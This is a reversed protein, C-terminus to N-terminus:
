VWELNSLSINAFNSDKFLLDTKNEPNDLFAKALLKAVSVYKGYNEVENYLLAIISHDSYYVSNIVELGTEGHIIKGSTNIKYNPYEEIVVFDNM